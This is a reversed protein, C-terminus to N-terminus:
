KFALLVTRRIARNLMAVHSNTINGSSLSKHKNYTCIMFKMIYRYIRIYMYCVRLRTECLLISCNIRLIYIDQFCM